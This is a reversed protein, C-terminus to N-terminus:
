KISYIANKRPIVRIRTVSMHVKFFLLNLVPNPNEINQTNPNPNPDKAFRIKFYLFFLKKKSKAISKLILKLNKKPSLHKQM